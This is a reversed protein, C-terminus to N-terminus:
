DYHHEHFRGKAEKHAACKRPMTWVQDLPVRTVIEGRRVAAVIDKDVEHSHEPKDLTAQMLCGCPATAIYAFSMDDGETRRKGAPARVHPQTM